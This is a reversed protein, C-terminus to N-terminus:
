RHSLSFDSIQIDDAGTDEFNDAVRGEILERWEFERYRPTSNTLEAIPAILADRPPNAFFPISYRNSTTMPIVRHVAAKYRDNTWVQMADALNVVITGSRPPVDIWGHESSHAQLGGTDDQLLLTLVGTDTHHGLATEGLPALGAREHAPVPDKIPYHNLRVSSSVRSIALEDDHTAPSGLANALVNVTLQALVSFEDFFEILQAHFGDPGTPWQNLGRGDGIQPDIYDFVEKNDRRRKTLERDHYGLGRDPTRRIPGKVSEDCAFFRRTVDWTRAIIDDLGHGALLFFGHDSAARDLEALDFSSPDSIDITPVLDM